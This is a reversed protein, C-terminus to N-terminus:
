FLKEGIRNPDIRSPAVSGNVLPQCGIVIAHLIEAMMNFNLSEVEDNVSHYLPDLPTGAIFTHAPIGLEAFPFNDSRAFLQEEGSADRLFYNNGYKKRDAQSLEKNLIKRLDSLHDGTIFPRVRASSRGRGIMELNIVAKITLPDDVYKQFAKSGQLGLEEASFAIFLLTREQTDMKAYYRMLAILGSVGSANDNAGNFITDGKAGSRGPLQHPNTSVTGVHDYHACFIIVERSKSRGPLSGIINVAEVRGRRVDFAYFPMFYGDNGAVPKAGAKRFEAAIFDAALKNGASGAFRGQMSDAALVMVLERLTSDNITETAADPQANAHTCLCILLIHLYLANHAYRMM